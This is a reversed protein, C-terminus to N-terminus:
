SHRLHLEGIKEPLEGARKRAQAARPPLHSRRENYSCTYSLVTVAGQTLVLDKRILFSAHLNSIPINIVLGDQYHKSLDHPQLHQSVRWHGEPQLDQARRLTPVPLAQPRHLHSRPLDQPELRQTTDSATIGHQSPRQQSPNAKRDKYRLLRLRCRRPSHSLLM